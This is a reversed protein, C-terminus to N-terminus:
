GSGEERLPQPLGVKSLLWEKEPLVGVQQIEEAIARMQERNKHNSTAIKHLFHIFMRNAELHGQPIKRKHDTLFKRFSNVLDELPGSIKMEFYCMLRLRREDMKTFLSDYRLMNIMDLTRQFEGRAFYLYARCLLIIDERELYTPVIRDANKDLFDEVWEFARRKIGVITINRLMVPSLYGSFYLTGLEIQEKYLEFLEKFYTERDTFLLPATNALYSYFMRITPAGFRSQYQLINTKLANYRELSPENLLLLATHWTNISCDQLLDSGELWALFQGMQSYDFEFNIRIKENKAFCYTQLKSVAYYTDLSRNQKNLNYDPLTKDQIINLYSAREFELLLKHRFYYENHHPLDELINDAEELLKPVYDILSKKCFFHIQSIIKHLPKEDTELQVIFEKVLGMLKSMVKSVATQPDSRIDRQEFVVRFAQEYNMKPHSFEPAFQLIFDLLKRVPEQNNFWPSDVM